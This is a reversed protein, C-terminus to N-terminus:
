IRIIQQVQTMEYVSCDQNLKIEGGDLHRCVYEPLRSLRHPSLDLHTFPPQNVIWACFHKHIDYKNGVPEGNLARWVCQTIEFEEELLESVERDFIPDYFYPDSQLNAEKFVAHEVVRIAHATKVKVFRGYNPSDVGVVFESSYYKSVSM